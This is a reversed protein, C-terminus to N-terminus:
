LEYMYIENKIFEQFSYIAGSYSISTLPHQFSSNKILYICKNRYNDVKVKSDFDLELSYRHSYKKIRSFLISITQFFHLAPLSKSELPTRNLILLQNNWAHLAEKSIYFSEKKSCYAVGCNHFDHAYVLHHPTTHIKKILQIKDKTKIHLYTLARKTKYKLEFCPSENLLKIAHFLDAKKNFYLDFDDYVFTKSFLLSAAFSGSIMYNSPRLIGDFSAIAAKLEIKVTGSSKNFGPYFM